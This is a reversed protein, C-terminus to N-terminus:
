ETGNKMEKSQSEFQELASTVSDAWLAVAGEARRRELFGLQLPTPKGGPAKVEIFIARGPGPIVGSLDSYGAPTPSHGGCGQAQGSRFGAGGSDIHFLIIRFRLRFAEQIARQVDREPHRKKPRPKKPPCMGGFISIPPQTM